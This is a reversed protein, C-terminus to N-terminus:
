LGDWVISPRTLANLLSLVDSGRICHRAGRNALDIAVAVEIGVAASLSIAASSYVAGLFGDGIVDVGRADLGKCPTLGGSTRM